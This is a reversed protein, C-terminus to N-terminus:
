FDLKIEVGGLESIKAIIQVYKDMLKQRNLDFEKYNFNIKKIIDKMKTKDLKIDKLDEYLIYPYKQMEALDKLRM